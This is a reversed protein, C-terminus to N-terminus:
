GDVFRYGFTESGILSLLADVFRFDGSGTMALWADLTRQDREDLDARGVAFRYLNGLVCRNTENHDVILKALEAPGSFAGIGIVEGRGEIACGARDPEATRYRGMLDYRELGFGIPDILSHCPSCSPNARHVQYQDAKCPTAATGLPPLETNVDPPPDPVEQCFLRMRIELGRVTPSTDGEAGRGVSLFSGHSLLGRRGSDGYKVWAGPISGPKPLGYLRALEENVFTEDLRLLDQWPRGEDLVVRKILARTEAKMAEGLAPPHEIQEYGLWMEYFRSVRALARGDRLMERAAAQVSAPSGLKGAAALDLLRDDPGTGWLLFSLRSAMEWDSLRFHGPRGAVPRGIEVRYLFEPHQLFARLVVAVGAYFDKRENSFALATSGFRTVEEAGLPRRLARRGFGAIFSRLCAEDGPGVPRCGVVRDRRAPDALLRAVVEQAVSEAAEVLARSPAQLTYDNDFPTRSDIPFIGKAPRSDEGFLERVTDDYETQTLRRLGSRAALVASSVTPPPDTPRESGISPVGAPQSPPRVPTGQAGAASKPEQDVGEIVGSCSAYALAMSCPYVLSLRRGKSPALRRTM